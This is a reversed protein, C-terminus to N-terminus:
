WSSYTGVDWWNSPNIVQPPEVIKKIVNFDSEPPIYVSVQIVSKFFSDATEEFGYGLAPISQNILVVEKTGALSSALRQAAAVSTASTSAGSQYFYDFTLQGNEDTKLEDGLNGALPKTLSLSMLQREVYFRHITLPRLGNVVLRFTQDRVTFFLNTDSM